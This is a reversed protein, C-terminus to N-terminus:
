HQYLLCMIYYLLVYKDVIIGQEANQSIHEGIAQFENAYRSLMRYSLIPHQAIVKDKEETSAREGLSTTGLISSKEYDRVYKQVLTLRHELEKEYNKMASYIKREQQSLYELYTPSLAYPSPQKPIVIPGLLGNSLHFQSTVCGFIFLFTSLNYCSGM